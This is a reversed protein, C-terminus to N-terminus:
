ILNVIHIVRYINDDRESLEDLLLQMQDLRDNMIQTQLHYQDLERAQVREKPSSFFSYSLIILIISFALVSILYQVFLNPHELVIDM